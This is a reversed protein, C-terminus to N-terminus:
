PQPQPAPTPATVAGKPHSAHHKSGVEDALDRLGALNLFGVFAGLLGKHIDHLTVEADKRDHTDAATTTQHTSVHGRAADLADAASNLLAVTGALDFSGARGDLPKWTPVLKTLNKATERAHTALRAEDHPLPWGVASGVVKQGFYKIVDSRTRGLLGSAALKTAKIEGKPAAGTTHDSSVAQDKSEAQAIAADGLDLFFDVIPELNPPMPKGLKKAREAFTTAATAKHARVQTMLTTLSRAEDSIQKTAM